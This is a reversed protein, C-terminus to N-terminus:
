DYIIDGESLGKLIEVQTDYTDGEVIEVEVVGGNEQKNVYKQGENGEKTKIYVIPVALANKKQKTVFSVDGTMGIRYRNSEPAVLSMKVEYVTGTEDTLPTYGVSQISTQLTDDPFSDFVIEGNMGPSLLVVETQDATASLYMTQPNIIEYSTLATVNVGATAVDMHSVIGDIPSALSAYRLSIDQLEVDLVSNTLDYQAKKFSDILDQRALSDMPLAKSDREAQENDYDLREKSYTNLYKEMTKRLLRQDLRAIVQGKKVTDGEKVGVWALAGPSQFHLVVHEDAEITGSFTLKEQLTQRKVTLPNSAAEGAAVQQQRVFLAAAAIVVVFLIWWRKKVNKIVSLRNM